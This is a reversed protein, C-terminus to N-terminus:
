LLELEGKDNLKYVKQSNMAYEKIFYVDVAWNHNKCYEVWEEKTWKDYTGIPLTLYLRKPKVKDLDRIAIM